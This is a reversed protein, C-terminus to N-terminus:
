RVYARVNEETVGIQRQMFSLLTQFDENLIVKM